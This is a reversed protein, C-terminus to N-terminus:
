AAQTATLAALLSPARQSGYVAQAALRAADDQNIDLDLAVDLPMAQIEHKTRRYLARQHLATQIQDILTM